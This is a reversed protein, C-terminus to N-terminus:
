KMRAELVREEQDEHCFLSSPPSSLSLISGPFSPTLFVDNTLRKYISRITLTNLIKLEM